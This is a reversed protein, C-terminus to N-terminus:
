RWTDFEISLAIRRVIKKEDTFMKLAEILNCIPNFSVWRIWFPHPTNHNKSFTSSKFKHNYNQQPRSLRSMFVYFQWFMAMCNM